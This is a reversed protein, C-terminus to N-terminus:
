HSAFEPLRTGTSDAILRQSFDSAIKQAAASGVALPDALTTDVRDVWIHTQDPLRILHALIRTKDNASQVQGLVVYSAHLSSAIATLDRQDRPLRLIQANGIVEYHGLGRSTLQEVVTDTVNDAFTKFAPDSTENDFRVIAVTPHRNPAHRAVRYAAGAALLLLTTAACALTLTTASFRRPPADASISAAALLDITGPRGSPAGRRSSAPDLSATRQEVREVPAIFQYGRRSFTRIFRPSVTDDDLASRVQAICFNLGRDFDVFTESGWVAARLDDRSVTDGARDLLCALVQAPQAQLRILKGDRRLERTSADFEFLGFRYRAAPMRPNDCPNASDRSFLRNAM